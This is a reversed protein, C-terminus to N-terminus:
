AAASELSIAASILPPKLISQRDRYCSIQNTIMTPITAIDDYKIKDYETTYYIFRKNIQSGTANRATREMFGSNQLWDLKLINSKAESESAWLYTKEDPLDVSDIEHFYAERQKYEGDFTYDVIFKKEDGRKLAEYITIEKMVVSLIDLTSSKTIIWRQCTRSETCVCLYEENIRSLCIFVVPLGEYNFLSFAYYLDPRKGIAKIYPEYNM